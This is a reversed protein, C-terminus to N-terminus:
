QFCFETCEWHSTESPFSMQMDYILHHLQTSQVAGPSIDWFLEADSPATPHSSSTGHPHIGQLLM